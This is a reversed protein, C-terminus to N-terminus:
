SQPVVEWVYSGRSNSSSRRDAAGPTYSRCSVGIWAETGPERIVIPQALAGYSTTATAASSENSFGFTGCKTNAAYAGGSSTANITTAGAGGVQLLVADVGSSAARTLLRQAVEVESTGDVRYSDGAPRWAKSPLERMLLVDGSPRGPQWDELMRPE